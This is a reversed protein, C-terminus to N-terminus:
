IVSRASNFFRLNSIGLIPLLELMEAMELRKEVNESDEGRM